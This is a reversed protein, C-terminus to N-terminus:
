SAEPVDADAPAPAEIVPVATQALDAEAQEAVRSAEITVITTEPPTVLHFGDPLKLDGAIVHGRLELSSVDVDIHEPLRDAPGTVDIAHTVLDMVGGSNKVGPSEGVTILTLTASVSESRGVRQFDAHIPAHSVPDRQISRVMVTDANGDIRIDLLQSRGGGHLFLDLANGDVSVPVPTTAHGYIVGPIRGRHREAKAASTGTATRREITLTSSTPKKAM